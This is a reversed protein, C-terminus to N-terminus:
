LIDTITYRQFIEPVFWRTTPSYTELIRKLRKLSMGFPQKLEVLPTEIPLFFNDWHVPILWRPQVASLLPPYFAPSRQTSIFLVDAEYHRGPNILLRLNDAQIFFGYSFDMRYDRLRLPVRLGPHILGSFTSGAPIWTHPSEFVEVQFGNLMTKDGPHILQFKERNINHIDLLTGANPSGFVIAGSRKVLEPVDM